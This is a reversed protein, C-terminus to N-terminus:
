ALFTSVPEPQIENCIMAIADDASDVVRILSLDNANMFGERVATNLMDLAPRFYDRFNVLIIPATILGLFKWSISQFLESYTGISGPLVIICDASSIMYDERKHMTEVVNLDDVDKHALELDVMFGPIVGTVKGYNSITSDAMAGMLGVKGGGYIIEKNNLALLRGLNEAELLYSRDCKDGSACFVCVKRIM